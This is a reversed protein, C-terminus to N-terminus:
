KDIFLSEIDEPSQPKYYYYGQVDDCGASKLFDLQAKTEVGEAIVKLGLSKALNIIIRIIDRDKSSVEIERVFQQDIKLRNIPLTKLRNLSSYEIGFDDISISVGLQQLRNLTDIIHRSDEATVSETVELELYEPELEYEKLIRAVIDVFDPNNLQVISLNVAIHLHSLGSEHWKKVQKIATKLVWEGINNITGNMESLQIFENPPILGIEPHQWRILAELGIINNTELNVQPQYHLFLENREEAQHLSNSILANREIDEKMNGMCVTYQNKGRAKAIHLAIDVNKILTEQDDGDYPYVVVGASATIFFSQGYVYFPHEFMEMINEVREKIENQSTLNNVMILFEDGGFRALMDTKQLRKRLSYAIEQLIIDGGSHGIIDNVMKFSDLDILIIAILKQNQRAQYITDTLTKSFLTRNPLKTLQDYYALYEIEKETNVKLLGDVLLNTFVRLLEVYQSSWIKYQKESHLGMYGIVANKEKIPIAVLSKVGNKTLLEKMNAAKQSLKSVDEIYVLDKTELENIWWTFDDLDRAQFSNIHSPIATNCWEYSTYITNDPQNIFSIYVRDVQFYQGIQGLMTTVKEDINQQNINVFDQSITSVLKQFNVQELNETLRKIYASNLFSGIFFATMYMIIRIIYDFEDIRIIRPDNNLWVLGQSLVATITILMLPIQTSFILSILMFLLPLAWITVASFNMFQWTTFPISILMAAVIIVEKILENKSLQLLMAIIALIFFMISTNITAAISQGDLALHPLFYITASAFGGLLFAFTIYYYLKFSTESNLILEDADRNYSQMLFFRKIAYYIAIVPILAFIPALQSYSLNFSTDRLLIETLSGLVRTIIVSVILINAIKRNNSVRTKYGWWLLVVISALMYSFHFAYYFATWFNSTWINIWGYNMWLLNYQLDALKPSIIFVYLLTILPLYLLPWLKRYRPYISEKALLLAFHLLLSYLAFQGITAIKRWLLALDITAASGSIAFGLSWVALAICIALFVRNILAKTDAYIIYLGFLLYVAVTVFFVLSLFLPLQEM